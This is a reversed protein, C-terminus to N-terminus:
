AHIQALPISASKKHYIYVYLLIHMHLDLFPLSSLELSPFNLLWSYLLIHSLLKYQTPRTCHLSVYVKNLKQALDARKPYTNCHCYLANCFSILIYIIMLKYHNIIHFRIYCSGINSDDDGHLTQRKATKESKAMKLSTDQGMSEWNFPYCLTNIHKTGVSSTSDSM